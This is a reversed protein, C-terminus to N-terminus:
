FNSSELMRYNNYKAKIQKMNGSSLMDLETNISAKEFPSINEYQVVQKYEVGNQDVFNTVVKQSKFTTADLFIQSDRMDGYSMYANFQIIGDKQGIYILSDSISLFSELQTTIMGEIDITQNMENLEEESATYISETDHNIWFGYNNSSFVIATETKLLFGKESEKIIYHVQKPAVLQGSKDYQVTTVKSQWNADDIFATLMNRIEQNTAKRPNQGLCINVFLSLTVTLVIIINRNM